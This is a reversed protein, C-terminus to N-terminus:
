AGASLALSPWIANGCIRIFRINSFSSRLTANAPIGENRRSGPDGCRRIRGSWAPMLRLADDEPVPRALLVVLEGHAVSLSPWPGSGRCRLEKSIDLLAVEAMSIERYLASPLAQGSIADFLSLKDPRV